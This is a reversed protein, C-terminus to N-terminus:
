AHEQDGRPPRLRARHPHEIFFHATMPAGWHLANQAVPDLQADPLGRAAEAAVAGNTRILDIAGQKDCHEHTMAHDANIGDVTPWDVGPAGGTNALTQVVDAEIRYMTGVHHVLVGVTRNERGVSTAWREETLNQVAEIM